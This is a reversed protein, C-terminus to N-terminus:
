CLLSWSSGPRDTFGHGILHDTDPGRSTPMWIIRTAWTVSWIATGRAHGILHDVSPWVTVGPCRRLCWSRTQRVHALNRLFGSVSSTLDPSLGSLTRTRGELGLRSQARLVVL